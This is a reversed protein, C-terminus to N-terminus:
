DPCSVALIYVPNWTLNVDGEANGFRNWYEKRFDALRRPTWWIQGASANVGTRRMEKLIDLPDGFMRIHSEMEAQLIRFGSRELMLPAEYLVPLTINEIVCDEKVNCFHAIKKFIEDELPEDCRLILIGPTIGMGQLQLM